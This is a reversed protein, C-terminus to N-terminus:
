LAMAAVIGTGVVTVATVVSSAASAATPAPVTAKNDEKKMKDDGAMDTKNMMDKGDMMTGNKDMMMDKDDMMMDKGDKMMGDKMMGSKGMTKVGLVKLSDKLCAKGMAEEGTFSLMTETSSCVGDTYQKWVVSMDDQMTVKYSTKGEPDPYCKGDATVALAKMFKGECKTGATFIDAIVYGISADLHDASDKIHDKACTPMASFSTLGSGTLADCGGSVCATKAYTYERLRIPGSCKPKEFVCVAKLDGDASVASVAM